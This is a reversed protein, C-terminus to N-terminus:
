RLLTVNGSKKDMAGKCYNFYETYYVFVGVPQAVGKFTGDWGNAIDSSEFILQGWRNYIHMWFKSIPCHSIARFVDNKGDGNPSFATPRALACEDPYIDVIRQATASGCNNTVTVSYTGSVIVNYFSDVSNDQWVYHAHPVSLSLTMGTNGCITTDNGLSIVPPSGMPVNATAYNPCDINNWAEITYNGPQTVIISRTSDGTSWLFNTGSTSAQLTVTDGPCVSYLNTFDVLPPASESITISDTKSGCANNEIAWYVGPNNITIQPGDANNSWVTNPVGTFLVRSFQQCYTTDNGLNFGSLPTDYSIRVSDAVRCSFSNTVTVSYSGGSTVSYTPNTSNGQWIYTSNPNAANLVLTQGTCLTTDNGLNVVPNPNQIITISDSATGCGNSEMAWYMGPTTITIQSSTVGTSWLTSATGTSLIRSFNGCYATDGGLNIVPPAASYNVQVAASASCGGNNDTVTVSYGGAQGVTFTANTSNDQWKYSANPYTANLLLTQGNCLTTDNGLSVVPVTNQVITITDALIGCGTTEKAWYVGASNVTIQSATVGTSWFTNAVGTSLVRSFNGCYSTDAGLSFPTQTVSSIQITDSKSCAASSVSVWYTGLATTTISQSTAGTSWLYTVGTDTANLTVPQGQCVATDNGLNVKLNCFPTVVVKNPLGAQSTPGGLNYGNGVLNCATGSLNPSNIVALTPTLYVAIYIKGDPARQMYGTYYPAGNGTVNGLNVVSANIAAVTYTSLDFQNVYQTTWGAEYLKSGDPSFEIGWPKSYNSFTLLNSLIGTSNDFDYLEFENVYYHAMAIHHYTSDITIQGTADDGAGRTAGITSVVPTTNIGASTIHYAYFSGTNLPHAIIWADHGNADKAAIVQETANAILLVNKQGAVIDGLGGNLNMDIVDYRFGDPGGFGDNTFLYYLNSSGPQRVVVAPQGGSTNGIIGNGNPMVQNTRDWVQQANSYFLLNGVSDSISAGCDVVTMASTTINVPSGPVFDMAAQNGFYWKYYEKQAFCTAFGILLIVWTLTAKKMFKRSCYNNM